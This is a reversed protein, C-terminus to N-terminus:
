IYAGLIYVHVMVNDKKVYLNCFSGIFGLNKRCTINSQCNFCFIVQLMFDLSKQPM